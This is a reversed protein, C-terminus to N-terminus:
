YHWRVGLLFSSFPFADILFMLYKDLSSTYISLPVHVYQKTCCTIPLLSSGHDDMYQFFVVHLLLLKVQYSM